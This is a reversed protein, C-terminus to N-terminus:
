HAKQILLPHRHLKEGRPSMIQKLKKEKEECAFPTNLWTWVMWCVIAILIAIASLVITKKM